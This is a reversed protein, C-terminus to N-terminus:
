LTLLNIDSAEITVGEPSLSSKESALMLDSETVCIVLHSNAARENQVQCNTKVASSM